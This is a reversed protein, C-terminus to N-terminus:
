LAPAAEFITSGDCPMNVNRYLYLEAVAHPGIVSALERCAVAVSAQNGPEYNIMVHRSDPVMDYCSIVNPVFTVRLRRRRALEEAYKKVLRLFRAGALKTLVLTEYDAFQLVILLSENPLM